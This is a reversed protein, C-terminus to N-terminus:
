MIDPQSNELLYATMSPFTEGFWVSEDWCKTSKVTFNQKSLAFYRVGNLLFTVPELSAAATRVMFETIINKKLINISYDLLFYIEKCQKIYM